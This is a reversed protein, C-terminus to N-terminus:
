RMVQYRLRVYSDQLARAEILQLVGLRTLEDRSRLSPGDILTATDKGGILVPAVVIDVFDLSDIGLDDKLSAEPVIKEEDIEIDETLFNKVKEEIELREM